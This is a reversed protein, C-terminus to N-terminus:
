FPRIKIFPKPKWDGDELFIIPGREEIIGKAQKIRAVCEVVQEQLLKPSSVLKPETMTGGFVLFPINGVSVWTATERNSPANRAL